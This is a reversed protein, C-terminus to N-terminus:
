VPRDLRPHAAAPEAAHRGAGEVSGLTEGLTAQRQLLERHPSAASAARTGILGRYGTRAATPPKAGVALEPLYPVENSRARPQPRASRGRRLAPGRLLHRAAENRPGGLGGVRGGVEPRLLAATTALLDSTCSPAQSGAAAAAPKAGCCPGYRPPARERLRRGLGLPRRPPARECGAPGPRAGAGSRADGQQSGVGVGGRGRAFRSFRSPYFPRIVCKQEPHEVLPGRRCIGSSYTMMRRCPRLRPRSAGSPWGDSPVLGM